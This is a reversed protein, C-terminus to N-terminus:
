PSVTVSGQAYGASTSATLTATGNNGTVTHVTFSVTTHGALVTVSSPLDSFYASQDTAVAISIDGPAANNMTITCSMPQGATVSSPTVAFGVPFYTPGFLPAPGNDVMLRTTKASHGADQNSFFGSQTASAVTLTSLAIFLPLLSQGFDSRIGPM